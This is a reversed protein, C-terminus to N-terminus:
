LSAVSAFEPVSHVAVWEQLGEKWVLSQANLKKALIMDQIDAETHPGQPQGNKAYHWIAEGPLPPRAPTSQVQQALDGLANSQQQQKPPLSEKAQPAFTPTSQDALLPTTQRTDLQLVQDHSDLRQTTHARFAENKLREQRLQERLRLRERDAVMRQNREKKLDSMCLIIILGILGILFGVFFWGVASRGKSHAIAACIIGFILGFILFM